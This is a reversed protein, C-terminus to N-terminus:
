ILAWIWGALFATCGVGVCLWQYRRRENRAYYVQMDNCASRYGTQFIGEESETRM